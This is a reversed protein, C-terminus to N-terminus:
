FIFFYMVNWRYAVHCAEINKITEATDQASSADVKSLRHLLMGGYLIQIKIKANWYHIDITYIFNLNYFYRSILFFKRERAGKILRKSEEDRQLGATGHRKQEKYGPEGVKKM